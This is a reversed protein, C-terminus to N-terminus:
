QRQSRSAAGVTGLLGRYPLRMGLSLAVFPLLLLVMTTLYRRIDVSHIAVPERVVRFAGAEELFLRYASPQTPAFRQGIWEADFRRVVDRYAELGAEGRRLRQLEIAADAHPVEYTGGFALTDQYWRHALYGATSLPDVTPDMSRIGEVLISRSSEQNEGIQGLATHEPVPVTVAGSYGGTGNEIMVLGISFVVLLLLSGGIGPFEVRSRLIPRPAFLPHESREVRRAHLFVGVASLAALAIVTLLFSLVSGPADGERYVAAAGGGLVALGLFVAAPVQERDLRFSGPHVLIERELEYSHDHWFSWAIGLIAAPIAAEAGSVATHLAVVGATAVIMWRRRRQLLFVPFISAAVAVAGALPVIPTRGPLEFPVDALIRRLAYWRQVEREGRSVYLVAMEGDGGEARFLGPLADVFPDRRPDAPDFRTSVETLPFRDGGNFDEIEVMANGLHLVNEGVASLREVAAAEDAGPSVLLLDFNQWLPRAPDVPAFLVLASTSLLFTFLAFVASAVLRSPRVTM